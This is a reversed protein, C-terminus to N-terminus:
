LPEPPRPFRRAAAPQHLGQRGVLYPLEGPLQDVLVVLEGRPGAGAVGAAGHLVLHHGQGARPTGVGVARASVAALRPLLAQDEGLGHGAGVARSSRAAAIRFLGERPPWAYLRSSSGRARGERRTGPAARRRDWNTATARVRRGPRRGRPPPAARIPRLGSRRRSSAWGPARGSM